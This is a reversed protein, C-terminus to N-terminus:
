GEASDRRKRKVYGADQLARLLSGPDDGEMAQQLREWSQYVATGRVNNKPPPGYHGAAVAKAAQVVADAARALPDPATTATTTDGKASQGPSPHAPLGRLAAHLAQLVDPLVDQAACLPAAEAILASAQRLRWNPDIAQQHAHEQAQRAAERAPACVRKDVLARESETLVAALPEPIDQADRPLSGVYHAHSFGHTNGQTGKRVWETRYLLVLHNRTKFQM